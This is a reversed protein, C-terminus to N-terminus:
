LEDSVIRVILVDGMEGSTPDTRYDKKIIMRVEIERASELSNFFEETFCAAIHKLFLERGKSFPCFFARQIRM